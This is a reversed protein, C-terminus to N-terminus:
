EKIINNEKLYKETCEIGIKYMEYKKEKDITFDMGNINKINIIITDKIYEQIYFKEYREELCSLIAVLYDEGTKIKDISHNNHIIIGIKNKIDKFYHIPYPAFLAGDILVQKEKIEPYFIVPYSITIRVADLVRMEPANIHNYYVCENNILESGTLILLKNTKEYLQEFTIDSSINKQKAICIILKMLSDGSDLGWKELISSFSIDRYNSFDINLMIDKLEKYTYGINLFFCILGGVSSGLYNDLNDLLKKKYLVKLAGIISTGKIGGGSIIIHSYM